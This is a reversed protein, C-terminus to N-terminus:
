KIMEEDEDNQVIVKVDAQMKTYIKSVIKTLVKESILDGYEKAFVYKELDLSLYDEM